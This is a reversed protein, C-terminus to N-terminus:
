YRLGQWLAEEEETFVDRTETDKLPITLEWLLEGEYEGSTHDYVKIELMDSRTTVTYGQDTFTYEEREKSVASRILKLDTGEWRFLRKEHLAGAFGNQADSEVINWYQHLRYNCLPYDIGPVEVQVYQGAAADWVFFESYFNSAGMVTFIVIDTAGDFNVDRYTVRPQDETGTFYLAQGNPAAYIFINDGEPTKGIIRTQGAADMGVSALYKTVIYGKVGDWEVYSWGDATEGLVHVLAGNDPTAIVDGDMRPSRRLNVWSSDPNAVRQWPGLQTPADASLYKELVFGIEDGIQVKMWEDERDFILVATGTYYLGTSASDGISKTRLHVRDADGGNIWCVISEARASPAVLCAMLLLALLKKM